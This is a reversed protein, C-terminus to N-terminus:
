PKDRCIPAAESIQAPPTPLRREQLLECYLDALSKWVLEQRFERCVRERGARGMRQAREQDSLLEILADALAKVDGSPVLLGTIEPSVSDIAGTAHTTVVPREAAQAELVTNPFGERRTPLVFVDMVLYYPAIDPVFEVHVVAHDRDIAIRTEPSVSDGAEYDGIVMLVASPFRKRLTGFAALLEPVGKDRTIRGVYGIVQAAPM